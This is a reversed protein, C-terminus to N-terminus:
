GLLSRGEEAVRRCNEVNNDLRTQTHEGLRFRQGRVDNAWRSNSLFSVSSLNLCLLFRKSNAPDM